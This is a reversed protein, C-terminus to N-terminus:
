FFLSQYQKENNRFHRPDEIFTANGHVSDSIVKMAEDYTFNNFYSDNNAYLNKLKKDQISLFDVIKQFDSRVQVTIKSLTDEKLFMFLEKFIHFSCDNEVLINIESKRQNLGQYISM